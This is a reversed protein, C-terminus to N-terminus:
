IKKVAKIKQNCSTCVENQSQEVNKKIPKYIFHKKFILFREPFM